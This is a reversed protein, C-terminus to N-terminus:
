TIIYQYALARITIEGSCSGCLTATHGDWEDTSSRDINFLGFRSENRYGEQIEWSDVRSWHIYGLIEAGDKIATTMEEIHSVIYRACSKDHGDAIGNETILIPKNWDNKIHMLINYLRKPYIEWGLDSVLSHPQGNQASLSSFFAGGLFKFSSRMVGSDYSIYARRFYNVGVFDLNNIWDPHKIFDPSTTDHRKLPNLYNLDEEGNIVANLFYDNTFYNANEAAEINKNNNTYHNQNAVIPTLPAPELDIMFNAVGVMKAPGGKDAAVDDLYTIADYAKAHAEILNHLAAKARAGDGVFGPSWIGIIYGLPVYVGSPENLTIWYDVLDKLQPVVHQVYKVYEDVTKQSEWGRLSKFYAEGNCAPNSEVANARCNKNVIPTLVWLPLTFHDLTVIPTLGRNRMDELMHRYHDIAAQDWVGKQPEIRSRELSLRYANLGLSKANEFDKEYYLLNWDKNAEGAPQMNNVGGNIHAKIERSSNFFDFDSNTINGEVQYSSTAAGWLFRLSLSASNIIKNNNNTITNHGSIPSGFTLSQAASSSISNPLISLPSLLTIIGVVAFCGMASAYKAPKSLISLQAKFRSLQFGIEQFIQNNIFM